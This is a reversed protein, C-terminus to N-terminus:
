GTQKNSSKEDGRVAEAVASRLAHEDLPTKCLSKTTVLVIWLGPRFMHCSGRDSSPARTNSRLGVRAFALNFNILTIEARSLRWFRAPPRNLIRLNHVRVPFPPLQPNLGSAHRGSRRAARLLNPFSPHICNTETLNSLHARLVRGELPVTPPPM